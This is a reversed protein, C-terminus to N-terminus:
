QPSLAPQGPSFIPLTIGILSQSPSRTANASSAKGLSELSHVSLSESPMPSLASESSSLSPTVSMSSAKGNSAVSLTSVSKSPIPLLASVSSSLSPTVSM